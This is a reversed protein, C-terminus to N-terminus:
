MGVPEMKEEASRFGGLAGTGVQSVRGVTPQQGEGM